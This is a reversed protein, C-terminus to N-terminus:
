EGGGDRENAAQLLRVALRRADPLSLWLCALPRADTDPGVEDGSWLTVHIRSNDDCDDVSFHGILPPERRCLFARIDLLERATYDSM